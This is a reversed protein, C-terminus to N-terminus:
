AMSRNWFARETDGVRRFDEAVLINYTKFYRNLVSELLKGRKQANSESFLAYLDTKVAERESKVKQQAQINKLYAETSKKQQYTREQNMRTFSDKVNVVKQIEAVLGKAKLQDDPWCTSFSEFETVRKIIERRERLFKQSNVNIRELLTRVMDFKNVSNKDATLKNAIDKYLADDVGAGKFVLL